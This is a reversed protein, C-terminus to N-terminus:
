GEFTDGALVHCEMPYSLCVSLRAAEMLSFWGREEKEGEEERGAVEIELHLLRSVTELCVEAADIEVEEM